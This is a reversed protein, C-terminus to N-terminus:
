APASLKPGCYAMVDSTDRPTWELLPFGDEDEIPPVRFTTYRGAIDFRVALGYLAALEDVARHEQESTAAHVHANVTGTKVNISPAIGVDPHDLM